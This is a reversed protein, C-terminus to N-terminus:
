MGIAVAAHIATAMHAHTHMTSELKCLTYIVKLNRSM